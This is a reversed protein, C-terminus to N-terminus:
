DWRCLEIGDMKIKLVEHNEFDFDKVSGKMSQKASSISIYKRAHTLFRSWTNGKTYFYRDVKRRVVYM